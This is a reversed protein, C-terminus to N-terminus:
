GSTFAEKTEIVPIMRGTKCKPCVFPDKGMINEFVEYGTLGELSPLFGAKGILEYCRALSAKMNGLAM